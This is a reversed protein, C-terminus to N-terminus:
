DGLLSPGHVQVPQRVELRYAALIVHESEVVQLGILMYGRAVIVNAEKNVSALAARLEGRAYTKVTTVIAPDKSAM